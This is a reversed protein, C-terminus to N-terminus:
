DSDMNAGTDEDTMMFKLSEKVLACKWAPARNSLKEAEEPIFTPLTLDKTENKDAPHFIRKIEVDRLPQDVYVSLYFEGIKGQTETAPVMIYTEGGQLKVRASNERERKIPSLFTISDKDFSTLHRQGKPLKFVAVCAYNLTEVFPYDHYQFKQQPLRGGPQTLSYMM